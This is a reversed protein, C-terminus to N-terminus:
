RNLRIVPPDFSVEIRLVVCPQRSPSPAPASKSTVGIAVTALMECACPAVPAVPAVLAGLVALAADPDAAAPGAGVTLQASDPLAVAVVASVLLGADLATSPSAPVSQHV